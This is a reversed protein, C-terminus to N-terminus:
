CTAWASEDPRQQGYGTEREYSRAISLLAAECHAPAAFNISLPLGDASFGCPVAIAPLGTVNFPRMFQSRPQTLAHTFSTAFPTAPVAQGPLVLAEVADFVRAFARALRGRMRHAAILDAASAIGGAIANVRFWDNYLHPRAAIADRHVAWVEALLSTYIADNWAVDEIEVTRLEAGAKQLLDLAAECAARVDERIDDRDWFYARPVGLVRGKLPMDLRASYRGRAGPGVMAELFIAADTVTRSLTGVTDLSWCYPFVGDTPVLGFSPKLGVLNCNGAPMRISGASDTGVALPVMGSSVAVASGSSSGGPIREVNWPNRGTARPGDKIAAGAGFEHTHVTGLIIAGARRLNAVPAADGAAIADARSASGATHPLGDVSVFSKVAVPVGQLPSAAEGRAFAADIADAEALAREADLTEFARLVADHTRIRDLCAETLSRASLERRRLLGALEAASKAWLPADTTAEPTFAGRGSPEPPLAPTFPPTDPGLPAARLALRRDRNEAWLAFVAPRDAESVPIGCAAREREFEAQLDM